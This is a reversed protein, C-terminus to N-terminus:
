DQARRESQRNVGLEWPLLQNWARERGLVCNECFNVGNQHIRVLKINEKIPAKDELLLIEPESSLRNLM